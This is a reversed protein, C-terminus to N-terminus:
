PRLKFNVVQLVPGVQCITALGPRPFGFITVKLSDQYLDPDGGRPEFSTGDETVFKWCGGEIDLHHMTGTYAQTIIYPMAWAAANYNQTTEDSFVEADLADVAAQHFGLSAGVTKTKTFIGDGAIADGHTRDDFMPERRGDHHLYVVSERETGEPDQNKIKATVTVEERPAFIPLGSPFQFLTTPDNATWRVEGNVTATVEEIHITQKSPDELSFELPSLEILRWHRPRVKKFTAFRHATSQIAKEGLAGDGNIDLRLVGTLDTTAEVTALGDEIHIDVERHVDTIKRYWRPLTLDTEFSQSSDQSSNSSPESSLGQLLNTETQDGAFVDSSFLTAHEEDDMTNQIIGIEQTTDTTAVDATTGQGCGTGILALIGFVITLKWLSKM